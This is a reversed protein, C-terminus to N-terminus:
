PRSWSIFGQTNRGNPCSGEGDMAMTSKVAPSGSVTTPRRALDERLLIGIQGHEAYPGHGRLELM